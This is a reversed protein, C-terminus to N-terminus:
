LTYKKTHCFNYKKYIIKKKIEKDFFVLYLPICVKKM